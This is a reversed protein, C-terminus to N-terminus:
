KRTHLTFVLFWFDDFIWSSDTIRNIDLFRVKGIAAQLIDDSIRFSFLFNLQKLDSESIGESLMSAVWVPTKSPLRSSIREVNRMSLLSSWLMIDSSSHLIKEVQLFNQCFREPRKYRTWSKPLILPHHIILACMFGDDGAEVTNKNIPKLKTDEVLLEVLFSPTWSLNM